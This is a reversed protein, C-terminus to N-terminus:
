PTPQTPVDSPLTGSPHASPIPSAAVFRAISRSPNGAHSPIDGSFSRLSFPKRVRSTGDFPRSQPLQQFDRGLPRSRDIHELRLYAVRSTIGPRLTAIGDVNVAAPPYSFERLGDDWRCRAPKIRVHTVSVVDMMRSACRGLHHAAPLFAPEVLSGRATADM